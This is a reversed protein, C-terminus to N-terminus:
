FTRYCERFRSDMIEINHNINLVKQRQMKNSIVQQRFTEKSLPLEFGELSSSQYIVKGSGDMIQIFKGATKIGFFRELILDFHKPIGLASSPRLATKSITEAITKIRADTNDLLSRSLTFYLFFGFFVLCIGLLFTYLFTLKTRIGLSM